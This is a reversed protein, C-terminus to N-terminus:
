FGAALEVAAGGMAEGKIAVQRQREKTVLPDDRGLLLGLGHAGEHFLQDREGLLPRQVGAAEGDRAHAGGGVRFDLGGFALVLAVRRVMMWFSNLSM